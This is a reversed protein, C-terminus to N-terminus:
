AREAAHLARATALAELDSLGEATLRGVDALLDAPYADSARFVAVSERVLHCAVAAPVVVSEVQYGDQTIEFVASFASGKAHPTLWSSCSADPERLLELTMLGAAASLQLNRETGAVWESIRRDLEQSFQDQWLAILSEVTTAQGMQTATVTFGALHALTSPGCPPIAARARVAAEPLTDGQSLATVFADWGVAVAKEGGHATIVAHGKPLGRDRRGVNTLLRAACAVLENRAPEAHKRARMGLIADFSPALQQAIPKWPHDDAFTGPTAQQRIQRPVTRSYMGPLDVLEALADMHALWKELQVRNADLSLLPVSHPDYCVPCLRTSRVQTLTRQYQVAAMTSHLQPCHEFQHYKKSKNSEAVHTGFWTHTSEAWTGQGLDARLQALLERASPNETIDV